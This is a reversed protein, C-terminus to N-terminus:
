ATVAPRLFSASSNANVSKIRLHTTAPKLVVMFVIFLYFLIGYNTEGFIGFETFSNVLVPILLGMCFRRKQGDTHILMSYITSILQAMVIFLGVLGLGMLVQLFTNHTMGGAYSNISEFKDTYDIRMYGYGLLPEKPFNITLLDKWFPLRGTLSLVEEVDGQKIFVQHVIYPTVALLATIIVIQMRRTKSQSVFFLIVLLLAIMSSRSGTIMLEYLMVFMMAWKAWKNFSHKLEIFTTSIGIVILMGLENPNIIFGGLRAEEGGHTLRFFKDPNIIKGALFGACILFISYAVIRSFRVQSGEEHQKLLILKIYLFCFLLTETDMLLHLITDSFSTSWMLSCVALGIYCLYLVLSMPQDFTIQNKNGSVHHRLLLIGTAATVAIRLSVKLLQTIQVEESLMFYSCIRLTLIIIALVYFSSASKKKMSFAADRIM